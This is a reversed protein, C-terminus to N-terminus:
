QWKLTGSPSEFLSQIKYNMRNGERGVSEMDLHTCANRLKQRLKKDRRDLFKNIDFSIAIRVVVISLASGIIVFLLQWWELGTNFAGSSM